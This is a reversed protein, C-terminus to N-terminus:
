NKLASATTRNSRVLDTGLFTLALWIFAFGILRGAPMAEHNILTGILFMITPTIYQLLGTITFPLRTTAGNFWLLPVVTVVGAGVLLLTSKSDHGLQARQQNELFVMYSVCPILAILTEISLSELAGLNLSKKMFGYSSWSISVALAIWPVSGFEVTLVVVGVAALAVAVWQFTRLRERFVLVGAAVTVLPTIYYGLSAEVVRNVSVAWIYVGWNITLFMSSLALLAFTRRTRIIAITKGLQKRAGLLLLCFVLAWIGRNALIEFATAKKLQHWYVPLLGWLTYAM